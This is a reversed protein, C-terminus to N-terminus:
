PRFQRLRFRGALSPRISHQHIGLSQPDRHRPCIRCPSNSPAIKPKSIGFTIATPNLSTLSYFIDSM